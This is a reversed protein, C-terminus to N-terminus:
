QLVWKGSPQKQFSAPFQWESNGIYNVNFDTYENSFYIKCYSPLNSSIRMKQVPSCGDDHYSMPKSCLMFTKREILDKNLTEPECRGAGNVIADTLEPMGQESGAPCLKLFNKRANLTDKWKTKTINFYRNLSPTCESPRNGGALCLTAECALRTDGTLLDGAEVSDGGPTEAHSTSVVMLTVMSLLIRKIKVIFGDKKAHLFKVM